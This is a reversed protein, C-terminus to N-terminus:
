SRSYTDKISLQPLDKLHRGVDIAAGDTMFGAGNRDRSRGGSVARYKLSAPRSCGLEVTKQPWGDQSYVTVARGDCSVEPPVTM